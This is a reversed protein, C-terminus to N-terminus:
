STIGHAALMFAYEEATDRLRGYRGSNAFHGAGMNMRMVLLNNDTKLERMRATWKAPEWYTVRPDNLGGSVFMPPYNGASINDYPSYGAILDYAEASELPNGWEAWEPPTLPLSADLMTALVDVFPVGLNVSRWLEPSDLTVAGMLEGGASRGSVSINGAAVYESAVLHNAVDVFDNFTNTRKELKGDLYWPYGMMAGGRVHAIAYAFGRDLASLRETSFGPPITLGYAGYGYLWLPRSGDRAWGKKWVISVPVEAGDRATVMIRETEYASEDYGSPVKAVKRTILERTSIDVDFITSPTVMSEYSVRLHSQAFEPNTSLSVVCVDTPFDITESAGDYGRVHIKDYGRNRSKLAIFDDFTQLGLWHVDDSGEVVTEWHERGPTEDSTVALRFNKHTDNALIHFRGHAHDIELVCEVDRSVMLTPETSLDAPVVWLEQAEGRSAGIVFFERSSTKSFGLFFGDDDEEYLTVDDAQDSGLRHARIRKTHWREEDLEAYVLTSGDASFSLRGAVDSLEDPLREGTTLDVVHAVCREDGDVDFSYALLRNDPSVTWSSIVFYDHGEALANEDLFLTGTDDDLVDTGLPRRSHTRYDEGPRYNWRYEYGNSTYPVSEDNEDIRGKFEDFLSDVLAENTALFEHFYENEDRLHSLVAEDTVNPYGPDRLWHYPDSSTRGHHTAEYPRQEAVPAPRDLAPLSSMAM